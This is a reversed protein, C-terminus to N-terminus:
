FPARAGRACWAAALGCSLSVSRFPSKKVRRPSGRPLRFRSRALSRWSNPKVQADALGEDTSVLRCMCDVPWWVAIFHLEAKKTGPTRTTLQRATPGM